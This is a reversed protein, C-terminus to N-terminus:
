LKIVPSEDHRFPCQLPSHFARITLGFTKDNKMRFIHKVILKEPKTKMM